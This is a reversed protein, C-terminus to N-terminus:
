GTRRVRVLALGGVAIAAAGLALAIFGGVIGYGTGPGGEAAAVVLGGIVVGALGLGVSVMGGRGGGARRAARALALGGAILGALGLSGAVVAWIRGPTWTTAGVPQLLVAAPAGIGPLDTGSLVAATLEPVSV